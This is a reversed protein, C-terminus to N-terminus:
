IMNMKDVRIEAQPGEMRLVNGHAHGGMHEMVAGTQYHAKLLYPFMYCM